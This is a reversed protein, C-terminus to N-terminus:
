SLFEPNLELFKSSLRAESHFYADRPTWGGCSKYIEWFLEQNALDKDSDVWKNSLRLELENVVGFIEFSSLEQVNIGANAYEDLRLYCHELHERCSLKRANKEWLLHSPALVCSSWTQFEALPMFNVLALPKRFAAAVSDFGTSTSICFKCNAMLWIDLFDERWATTAYDVVKPHDVGFEDKVAKGMRFVWYGKEALAVAASRYKAIDTDRYSHYGWDKGAILTKLYASDRVILCVIPEGQKWGTQSIMEIGKLEENDSLSLQPPTRALYGDHDRSGNIEWSPLLRRDNTSSTFKDSYYPIRILPSTSLRRRILRLLFRNCPKGVLFFWDITRGKDQNRNCVQSSLYYEVDFALHGIRHISFYGFRFSIIPRILRIIPIFPVFLVIGFAVGVWFVIKTIKRSLLTWSAERTM